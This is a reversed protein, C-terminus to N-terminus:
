GIHTRYIKRLAAEQKESLSGRDKFQDNLSKIFDVGYRLAGIDIELMLDDLMAKISVQSLAM